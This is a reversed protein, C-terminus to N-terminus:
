QCVEKDTRLTSPKKLLPNDKGIILIGVALCEIGFPLYGGYGLIPMEFLRCCNVYPISYKWKALSHINWMEWLLGCILAAAAPPFVFRWDGDAIPSLVTWQETLAQWAILMLLPAMWLLPFLVSPFIAILTLGLWSLVLLVAATRKPRRLRFSRTRCMGQNFLRFSLLLWWTSVVAPLVTSFSVSAFMGYEAATFTEVGVYYWNQVFRNLFEFFWWFVTSAPFLLSFKLPRDLMLCSGTRKFCIGNVVLIYGVWLVSFTHRQLPVMWEFRSWALVWGVIGVM